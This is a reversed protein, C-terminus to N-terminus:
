TCAFRSHTLATMCKVVFWSPTIADCYESQVRDHVIYRHMCGCGVGEHLCTIDM